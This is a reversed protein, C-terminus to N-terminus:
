IKEQMNQYNLALNLELNESLISQLEATILATLEKTKTLALQYGYNTEDITSYYNILDNNSEIKIGSGDPNQYPGANNQTYIILNDIFTLFM